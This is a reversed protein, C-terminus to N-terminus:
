VSVIEREWQGEEVASTPYIKAGGDLKEGRTRERVTSSRCMIPCWLSM